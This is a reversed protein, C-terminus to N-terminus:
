RVREGTSTSINIKQTSDNIITACGSFAALVFLTIAKKMPGIIERSLYCGGGTAGELLCRLGATSSAM